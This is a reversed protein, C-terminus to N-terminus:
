FNHTERHFAGENGDRSLSASLFTFDHHHADDNKGNQKMQQQLATRFSEVVNTRCEEFTINVQRAQNSLSKLNSLLDTKMLHKGNVIAYQELSEVHGSPDIRYIAPQNPHSHLSMPVYAVILTAGFPRAAVKMTYEQYLLSLEELLIHIDISEDFTYEHQIALKQAAAVLIRGDSSLGSHSIMINPTVLSFRTTGDDITFINPLLQPAAMIIGYESANAYVMAVIPTGQESAEMAREVQGLKGTPDFTTLSYSYRGGRDYQVANCYFHIDKWPDFQLLWWWAVLFSAAHPVYRNATRRGCEWM